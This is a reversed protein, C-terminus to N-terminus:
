NFIWASERGWGVGVSFSDTNSELTQLTGWEWLSEKKNWKCNVNMINTELTCFHPYVNIYVLFHDGWLDLVWKAGFM